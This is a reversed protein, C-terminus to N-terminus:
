DFVLEHFFNAIKGEKIPSLAQPAAKAQEERVIDAAEAISTLEETPSVNSRKLGVKEMLSKSFIDVAGLAEAPPPGIAGNKEPSYRVRFEYKAICLVSGPDLRRDTVKHGDIRVGNTSDLDVVYWYGSSLVLRCHKGSVNKFRLVIDCSESRGVTLEPKVLLITEGGGLPVLEGYSM